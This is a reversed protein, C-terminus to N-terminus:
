LPKCGSESPTHPESSHILLPQTAEAQASFPRNRPPLLKADLSHWQHRLWPLATERWQHGLWTVTPVLVASAKQRVVPQASRIFASGMDVIPVVPNREKVPLPQPWTLPPAIPPAVADHAALIIDAAMDLKEQHEPRAIMEQTWEMLSNIHEPRASFAPPITQGRPVILSLDILQDFMQAHLQGMQKHILRRMQEYGRRAVWTKGIRTDPVDASYYNNGLDIKILSGEPYAARFDTVHPLLHTHFELVAIDTFKHTVGDIDVAYSGRHLLSTSSAMAAKWVEIDAARDQGIRMDPYADRFSQPYSRFFAPVTDDQTIEATSIYLAALADKLRYDGVADRLTKASLEADRALLNTVLDAYIQLYDPSQYRPQAPDTDSPATIFAACHAGVSDACIFPNYNLLPQPLRRELEAYNALTTIGHSAGSKCHLILGTKNPTILTKILAPDPANM